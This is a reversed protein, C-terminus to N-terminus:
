ICETTKLVENLGKEFTASYLLAGEARLVPLTNFYKSFTHKYNVSVIALYELIVIMFNFNDPLVFNLVWSVIKAPPSSPFTNNEM